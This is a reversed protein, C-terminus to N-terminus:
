KRTPPPTTSLRWRTIHAHSSGETVAPPITCIVAGVPVEGEDFAKRAEKLAEGMCFEDNKQIGILGMIAARVGRIGSGPLSRM